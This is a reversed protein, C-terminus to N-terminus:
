LAGKLKLTSNKLDNKVYFASILGFVIMLQYSNTTQRLVWELSSEFYIGTLGGLVGIFLPCYMTNKYRIVLRISRYYFSLLFCIFIFLNHWGTEAAIMLYTTEVLGEKFGKDKYRPSHSSYTYPRNVKLGFNNLGIGLTKDNAMKIATKALYVRTIASEEPASTFREYISNYSKAGVLLGGLAIYVIFVIKKFTFSNYFSLIYIVACSIAFCLMGGRSLTMLISMSCISFIAGWKWNFKISNFFLAFAIGGFVQLYMVLSNQHPFPGRAQYRGNIYKDWLVVIFIYMVTIILSKLFCKVDENDSIYNCFVWYIFYMRFLKLLEFLSFMTNGSNIISLGSFFLYLFYFFSGPPIWVIRKFKQRYLTILFLCLFCIDVLTFEFGRSTGRYHEHSIFNISENLRCTFFVSLTLILHEIVKFRCALASGLPVGIFLVM